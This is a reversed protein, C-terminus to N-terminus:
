SKKRTAKREVRAGIREKTRESGQSKDAMGIARKNLSACEQEEPRELSRRWNSREMGCSRDVEGSAEPKRLIKTWVIAQDNRATAGSSWPARKRIM